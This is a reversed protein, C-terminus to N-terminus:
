DPNSTSSIGKKNHWFRGVRVHLAKAHSFHARLLFSGDYANQISERLWAAWGLIWDRGGVWFHAVM